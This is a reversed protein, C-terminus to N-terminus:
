QYLNDTRGWDASFNTMAESLTQGKGRTQRHKDPLMELAEIEYWLRLMKDKQNYQKFIKLSLFQFSKVTAAWNYMQGMQAAEDLSIPQPEHLEVNQHM